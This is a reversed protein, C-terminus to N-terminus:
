HHASLLTEAIRAAADGDDHEHYLKKIKERKEHYHDKRSVVETMLEILQKQNYAKPGPTHKNYDIAFGDNLTYHEIDYPYFIIPKNLLVFDAFISSYDTILADFSNLLPYVDSEEVYHINEHTATHLMDGFKPHLKIFLHANHKTLFELFETSGFIKTDDFETQGRRFTPMYLFTRNKSDQKLAILTQQLKESVGLTADSIPHHLVDCRPYGSVILKSSQTFSKPLMALTFISSGFLYDYQKTQPTAYGIKKLGRGHLLQVLKSRGVFSANDRHLYADLITYGARLAYWMGSISTHTHATFGRSRLEQALERNKALWVSKINKHHQQTYLFLYKTNDAFVEGNIGQHWGIFIWINNSRPFIAAIHSILLRFVLLIIKKTYVVIRMSDYTRTEIGCM